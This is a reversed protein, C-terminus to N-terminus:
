RVKDLAALLEGAVANCSQCLRELAGDGTSTAADKLKRNLLVLYCRYQSLSLDGPEILYLRELAGDGTSTAADKLKRNLLVLHNTATETDINDPLAGKSSKYLQSSNSILKGSFDIFQVINGILGIVALTEM